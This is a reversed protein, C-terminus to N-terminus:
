SYISDQKNRNYVMHEMCHYLRCNVENDISINNSYHHNPNLFVWKSTSALPDAQEMEWWHNKLYSYVKNKREKYTNAQDNLFLTNTHHLKIKILYCCIWVLFVLVLHSLVLSCYLDIVKGCFPPCINICHSLSQARWWPELKSMIGEHWMYNKKYEQCMGKCSRIVYEGLKHCEYTGSPSKYSSQLVWRTLCIHAIWKHICM